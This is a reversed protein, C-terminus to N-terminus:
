RYTGGEHLSEEFPQNSFFADSEYGVEPDDVEGFVGVVTEMEEGGGFLYEGAGSNSFIAPIYFRIRKRELFAKDM